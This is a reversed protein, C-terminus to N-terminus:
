CKSLSYVRVLVAAKVPHFDCVAARNQFDDVISQKPILKYPKEETVDEDLRCGFIEQSQASIFLPTLGDQLEQLGESAARSEEPKGEKRGEEKKAPEPM